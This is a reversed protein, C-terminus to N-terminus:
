VGFTALPVQAGGIRGVYSNCVGSGKNEITVYDTNSDYSTIQQFKTCNGTKFTLYDLAEKIATPTISNGASEFYWKVTKSQFM